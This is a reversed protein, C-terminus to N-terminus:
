QSVSAQTAPYCRSQMAQMLRARGRGAHGERRSQILDGQPTTQGDCDQFWGSHNINMVVQKVREGRQAKARVICHSRCTCDIRVGKRWRGTGSFPTDASGRDCSQAQTHHTMGLSAISGSEDDRYRGSEREKEMLLWEKHKGRVFHLPKERMGEVKRHLATQTLLPKARAGHGGHFYRSHACYDVM